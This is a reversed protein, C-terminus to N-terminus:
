NKNKQYLKELYTLTDTLHPHSQLLSDRLRQGNLTIRLSDLYIKLHHIRELESQSISPRHTKKKLLPIPQIPKITLQQSNKGEFGSLISYLSAGLFLTCFLALWLKLEAGSLGMTKQQLLDACKRLWLNIRGLAKLVISPLPKPNRPKRKIRIM